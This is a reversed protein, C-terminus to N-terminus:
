LFSGRGPDDGSSRLAKGHGVEAKTVETRILLIKSSSVMCCLDVLRQEVDVYV